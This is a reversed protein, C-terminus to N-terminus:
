HDLGRVIEPTIEEFSLVRKGKHDRMFETADDRSQFPVLEHGMPGLVDSGIVYFASRGDISKLGYYETVAIDKIDTEGVGPAYKKLDLLYKFMDKAGDFWLIAGNKLTIKTAWDPYKYVFMGCVPCKDSRGPKEAASVTVCTGFLLFLSLVILATKRM